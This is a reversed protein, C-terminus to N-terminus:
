MRGPNFEAIGNLIAEPLINNELVVQRITKGSKHAKKAIDAARDYGIHPILGTVLALSKEIFAACKEENATIGNVCKGVFLISVSSLLEISQLLNHAIVPLMVNLEFNGGQGGVMITTDNGMVQAGVQIVAEPIVPNVKGPMISSGPQLSPINIEGVGCRPGSALWRIDNAIKVLAVAMSKLIGSTEVATDQTAQAQFHNEAERFELQTKAAITQIVRPAFDPHANLGSGVATGGLALELLRPKVAGLRQIALTIQRAYGSFEQGLTMPVADQLHTRGIKKVTRFELAKESLARELAELAPMLRTSIQTLASVHIVTPIVDNSSQSANVHDNPHVPSKGGRQGTLIENARSALVENMNMNTSTGSGTQFVDVVFQDDFKGEMVEQAAQAIAQGMSSDIGGLAANVQAACKKVLALSYIFSLPLSTGSIPFNDVARQTQAGYYSNKPVRVMGMTDKEERYDM